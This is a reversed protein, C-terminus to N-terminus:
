CCLLIEQSVWNNECGSVTGGDTHIMYTEVGREIKPKETGDSQRWAALHQKTYPGMPIHYIFLRKCCWSTQHEVCTCCSNNPSNCAYIVNSPDIPTNNDSDSGGDTKKNPGRRRAVSEARKLAKLVVESPM